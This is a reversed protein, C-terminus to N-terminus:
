APGLAPCLRGDNPIAPIGRAAMYRGSRIEQANRRAVLVASLHGAANGDHREFLLPTIGRFGGGAECPPSEACCPSVVRCIRYDFILPCAYLYAPVRRGDVSLASVVSSFRM